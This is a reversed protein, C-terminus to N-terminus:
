ADLAARVAAGLDGPRFPKRLLNANGVAAELAASDSFGSIFLVRLAPNHGLAAQAIEAGNAGPMAFDVILLDPSRTTLIKLASEGDAAEYVEYGIDSLTGTVVDRVDPDDDVVLLKESHRQRSETVDDSVSQASASTRPLSLRIATGRGPASDITVDGGIQRVIGYV